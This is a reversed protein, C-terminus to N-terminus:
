AGFTMSGHHTVIANANIYIPINLKKALRCFNWDEGLYRKNQDVKGGGMWFYELHKVEPRDDFPEYDSVHDKMIEFAKRDIMIFGTGVRNVEIIGLQDAKDKQFVRFEEIGKNTLNSFYKNDEQLPEFNLNMPFRKHPTIGAIILKPSQFLHLVASKDFGQDSDIMLLRQCKSKLFMDVLSNRAHPILSSGVVRAMEFYVGHQSLHIATDCLGLAYNIFVNGDHSPTAIMLGTKPQLAIIKSLDKEATGSKFWEEIVQKDHPWFGGVGESTGNQTVLGLPGNIKKFTEDQLEPHKYAHRHEVVVDM